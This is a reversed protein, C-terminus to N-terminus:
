ISLIPEAILHAYIALPVGRQLQPQFVRGFWSTKAPAIFGTHPISFGSLTPRPPHSFVDATSSSWWPGLTTMGSELTGRLWERRVVHSGDMSQFLEERLGTCREAPSCPGPGSIQTAVSKLGADPTPVSPQVVAPARESKEFLCDLFMTREDYDPTEALEYVFFGDRMAKRAITAGKPCRKTSFGNGAIIPSRVPRFADARAYDSFVFSTNYLALLGGEVLSNDIASLLDMQEGHDGRLVSMAFIIDFPGQRELEQPSSAFAFGVQQAAINRKFAGLRVDCGVINADPFYHRLSIMESGDSCGFSLIKLGGGGLREGYRSRTWLQAVQFIDPYRNLATKQGWQAM